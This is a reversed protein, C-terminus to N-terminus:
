LNVISNALGRCASGHTCPKRAAEMKESRPANRLISSVGLPVDRNSCPDTYWTTTVFGWSRPSRIRLTSSFQDCSMFTSSGRERHRNQHLSWRYTRDTVTSTICIGDRSFRFMPNEFLSHAGFLASYASM